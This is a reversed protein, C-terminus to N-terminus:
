GVSFDFFCYPTGNDVPEFRGNSCWAESVVGNTKKVRDNDTYCVRDCVYKIGAKRYGHDDMSWKYITDSNVLYNTLKVIQYWPILTGDYKKTYCRKLVKEGVLSKLKTFPIVRGINVSEEDAKSLRRIYGLPITEKTFM